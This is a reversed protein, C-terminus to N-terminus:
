NERLVDNDYLKEFHNKHKAEEAALKSFLNAMAPERSADALTKYLKYSLEERQMATILMNQYTQNDPPPVLYEGIQLNEVAPAAIRSYGAKRFQELAEIHRREMLEIERIAEMLAISPAEQLLQHYFHVAEWEREIAFDLINEFQGQDM